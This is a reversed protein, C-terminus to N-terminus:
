STAGKKACNRVYKWGETDLAHCHGGVGDWSKCPAAIDCVYCYCLKCYSEHPTKEFPNKVCLHRSHPYDRCAVQGKEAVLCVDPSDQLSNQVGKEIKSLDFSDEEPNFDLIFCDEKDDFEKIASRRKLCFIPRLPTDDDIVDDDDVVLHDFSAKKNRKPTCFGPPSDLKRVPAM